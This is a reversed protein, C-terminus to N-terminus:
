LAYTVVLQPSTALLTADKALFTSGDSQSADEVDDRIMWGNNTATGAAFAQIDSTVDVSVYGASTNACPSKGVNISASRQAQPPNNLSTGFPQNNWTLTSEVWSATARYVDETRCSGSPVGAAYLRLTAVTVAATAPVAPSCRTLDFRVYARHNAGQATTVDISGSTGFNSTAADQQVVADRMATSTSSSGTIVCTRMVTLKASTLPFSSAQLASAGFPGLLLVIVLRLLKM